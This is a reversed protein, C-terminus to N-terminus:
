GIGSGCPDTHAHHRILCPGAGMCIGAGIFALSNTNKGIGFNVVDVLVTAGGVELLYRSYLHIGVYTFLWICISSYIYMYRYM